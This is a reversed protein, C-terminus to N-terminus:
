CCLAMERADFPCHISFQQQRMLDGFGSCDGNSIVFFSGSPFSVVIIESLLAIVIPRTITAGGFALGESAGHNLLRRGGPVPLTPLVGRAIVDGANLAIM